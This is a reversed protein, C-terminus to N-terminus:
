RILVISVFMFFFIFIDIFRSQSLYLRQDLYLFYMILLFRSFVGIYEAISIGEPVPYFKRQLIEEFTDITKILDDGAFFVRHGKVRLM